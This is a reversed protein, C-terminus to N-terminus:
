SSEVLYYNLYKFLVGVDCGYKMGGLYVFGSFCIVYYLFFFIFVGYNKNFLIDICIVWSIVM